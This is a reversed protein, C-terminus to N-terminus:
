KDKRSAIDAMIYKVTEAKILADVDSNKLRMEALEEKFGHQLMDRIEDITYGELELAFAELQIDKKSM